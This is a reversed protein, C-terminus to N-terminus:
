GGMQSSFVFLKFVDGNMGPKILKKSYDERDIIEKGISIKIHERIEGCDTFVRERFKEGFMDALQHVFEVVSCEEKIEVKIEPKKVVDIIFGFFKVTVSATEGRM